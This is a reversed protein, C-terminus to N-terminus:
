MKWSMKRVLFFGTVNGNDYTIKIGNTNEIIKKKVSIYYFEDARINFLKASNNIKYYLIGDITEFLPCAIGDIVVTVSKSDTDIKIIEFNNSDRVCGTILLIATILYLTYKM